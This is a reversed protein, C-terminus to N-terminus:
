SAATKLLKVANVDALNADSRQFIKYGVLGDSAFLEDARIIVTQTVDRVMYRSFDGFAAVVTGAGATLQSVNNNVVYPFDLIRSPQGSEGASWIYRGNGDKLKRIAALTTDHLQVFCKGPQNRYAADLSHIFDILEDYTLATTSALTKGVTGATIFGKPQNTGSGTTAYSNFVRGLREGAQALITAEVPFGSDQLLEYSLKIWDSDFKYGGLTITSLTGETESSNTVAEGVLRGTNSTDDM